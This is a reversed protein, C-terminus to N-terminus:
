VVKKKNESSSTVSIPFTQGFGKNKERHYDNTSYICAFVRVSLDM